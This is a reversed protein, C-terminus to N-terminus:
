NPGPGAQLVPDRVVDATRALFVAETLVPEEGSFRLVEVPASGEPPQGVAVQSRYFDDRVAFVEVEARSPMWYHLLQAHEPVLAAVVAVRDASSQNSRSGHTIAGDYLIAGGAKMPLERLYRTQFVDYLPAVSSRSSM